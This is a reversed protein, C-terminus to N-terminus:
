CCDSTNSFLIKFMLTHKWTPSCQETQDTDELSTVQTLPLERTNSAYCIESWVTLLQTASHTVYAGLPFRRRSHWFVSPSYKYLERM